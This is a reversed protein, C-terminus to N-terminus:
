SDDQLNVPPDSRVLERIKAVNEGTRKTAPAGQREDDNVDERDERFGKHWICVISKIM